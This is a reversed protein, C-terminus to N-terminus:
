GVGGPPPDDDYATIRADSGDAPRRLSLAVTHGPDLHYLRFQWQSPDDGPDAFAARIGASIDFTTTTLEDALSSERAKALSEKLTWLRLSFEAQQGAPVGLLARREEYSFFQRAVELAAEGRATAEVDIGIDPGIRTVACATFRESHSISFWTPPDLLPFAISPKGRASLAFRWDGPQVPEYHSLVRRLLVRGAM